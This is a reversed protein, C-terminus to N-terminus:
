AAEDNKTRARRFGRAVAESVTHVYCKGLNHNIVIKDYYPDIPLHYIKEGNQNVNCKVLPYSKDVDKFNLEVDLTKAVDKAVDSYKATTFFVAKIKRNEHPHTRKYHEMSGYLQFIHKEQINKFKAWCKTQVILVEKKSEIILDRGLDEFGNVAGNYKVTFGEEEYLHGIYREYFTGIELNDMNARYEDLLRQAESNECYKEKKRFVRLVLLFAILAVVFGISGAIIELKFKLLMEM